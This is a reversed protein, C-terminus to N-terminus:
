GEGPPDSARAEEGGGGIKGAASDCRVEGEPPAGPLSGAEEFLRACFGVLRRLLAPSASPWSSAIAEPAVGQAFAQLPTDAPLRTGFVCLAGSVRARSWWLLPEGPPWCLVLEAEVGWAEGRSVLERPLAQVWSPWRLHEPVAVRMPEDLLRRTLADLEPAQVGTAPPPAPAVMECRPLEFYECDRPRLRCWRCVRDMGM